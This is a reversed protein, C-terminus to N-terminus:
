DKRAPTKANYIWTETTRCSVPVAGAVGGDLSVYSSEHSYRIPLRNPHETKPRETGGTACTRGDYDSLRELLVHKYGVGSNHIEFSHHKLLFTTPGTGGQRKRGTTM